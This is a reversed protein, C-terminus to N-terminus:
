SVRWALRPAAPDENDMVVDALSQPSAEAMYLEQGPLYRTRYLRELEAASGAPSLDRVMSRALREEASAWVFVSFDWQDRLEPRLLFLGDVLLVADIPAEEPATDVPRDARHDFIATRVSRSGDPGLPELLVRRLQATDFSDLYYGEPSERGRRYRDRRPRHFGDVSARIVTRGRDRVAKALEEALTTKGALDPGDIAVRVPHRRQVASIRDALPALATSRATTSV